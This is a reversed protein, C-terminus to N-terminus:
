RSIHMDTDHEPATFPIEIAGLPSTATDQEVSQLTRSKLSGKAGNMDAPGTSSSADAVRSNWPLCAKLPMSWWQVLFVKAVAPWCTHESNM